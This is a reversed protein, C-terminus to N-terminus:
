KFAAIEGKVNFTSANLTIHRNNSSDYTVSFCDLIWTMDLLMDNLDDFDSILSQISADTSTKYAALRTSIDTIKSNANTIRTNITNLNNSMRTSTNQAYTQVASLRTSIDSISSNATILGSSVNSINGEATMLRENLDTFDGNLTSIQTQYGDWKNVKTQTIGNLVTLNTHQHREQYATNWNSISSDTLGNLINLNDHSHNGGSIILDDIRDNLVKGQKASLAATSSNSTLNDIVQVTQGSGGGQGQSNGLGFASIEEDGIFVKNTHLNNSSDLYFVDNLWELGNVSSNTTTLRTSLDALRTSVNNLRTSVNALRTSVNNLRTSTNNQATSVNNLGTSVNSLGTQLLGVSTNLVSINTNITNVLTSLDSIDDSYGDWTNVKTQTISDLVSKNDHSHKLNSADVFNNFATSTIKDLTTKNSHTHSRTYATNWNSISSNTLGSLIGFNSHSHKLNSADTWNTLDDQSIQDLVSKNDHSHNGGGIVLDDILGKLVKGQKASLADTSSNSTLNDIVQVSQGSGGGSGQGNGLGFASIEDDGVFTRKAHINNSSDLYFADNLWELGTVSTDITTIRNELINVSTNTTQLRTSVNNLRTSVNNLRTSVNNLRTSVNNLRTSIDGISSNANNLGTSLNLISSNAQSLGTSINAINNQNSLVIENLDSLDGSLVSITTQYGDWKNVKTQTISDLVSKNSHSHKLNSADTWNTLDTQTIEDLVEKNEHFHNGGSIVLDDILGKLVKGQKASLADTSSDSELNNIVLINSGQGGGGGSSQGLGFASIESDGIFTFRAHINNSSDIYFWDNVHDWSTISSNTIGDLISKNSHSHRLNSADVFNNWATATLKDLTTKNSHTHRQQYATNWNNVSTNSINDLVSKNTHTHSSQAATNWDSISTDNLGNLIDSNTHSHRLNSADDYNNLDTQTISDLVSKNSHTHNNQYATNWRNINTQTISDLIDKNAHSHNNQGGSNWYNISADTISDLLDKNSHSHRLNSADNYNDLDNFTIRHAASAVFVPDTEVFDSEVARNLADYCGEIKYLYRGDTNRNTQATGYLSNECVVQFKTKTIDVAVLVNFVRNQDSPNCASGGAVYIDCPTKPSISTSDNASKALVAQDLPLEIIMAPTLANSSISQDAMKIYCRLYQYPSFDYDELQWNYGLQNANVGLLGTTGDTEYLVVPKRSFNQTIQVYLSSVDVVPIDDIMESLIRGQNASLCATSSDSLLNDIVSCNCSGGGGSSGSADLGFAFVDYDSGLTYRCHVSNENENFYFWDNVSSNNVIVQSTGSGVSGGSGYGQGLNQKTKAYSKINIM